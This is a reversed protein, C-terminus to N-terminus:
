RTSFDISGEIAVIRPAGAGGVYFQARGALKRAVKRFVWKKGVVDIDFEVDVPVPLGAELPEPRPPEVHLSRVKLEVDAHHDRAQQRLDGVMRATRAEAAGMTLSLARKFDNKALADFFGRVTSAADAQDASDSASDARAPAPSWALLSALIVSAAVLRM